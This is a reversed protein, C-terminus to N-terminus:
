GKRGQRWLRVALVILWVALVVEITALILALWWLSEFWWSIAFNVITLATVVVLIWGAQRNYNDGM